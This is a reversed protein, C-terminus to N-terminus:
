LVYIHSWFLSYGLVSTTGNYQYWSGPSKFIFGKAHYDRKLFFQRQCISLYFGYGFRIGRGWSLLKANSPHLSLIERATKVFFFPTERQIACFVLCAMEVYGLGLHNQLAKMFHIYCSLYHHLVFHCPTLFLGFDQESKTQSPKWPITPKIFLDLGITRRPLNALHQYYTILDNLCQHIPATMKRCYSTIIKRSYTIVSSRCPVDNISVFRSLVLVLMMGPITSCNNIDRHCGCKLLFSIVAMRIAEVRNDPHIVAQFDDHREPYDPDVYVSDSDIGLYPALLTIIATVQVFLQTHNSTGNLIV